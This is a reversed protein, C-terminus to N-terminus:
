AIRVLYVKVGMRLRLMVQSHIACLILGAGMAIELTLAEQNLYHGLM